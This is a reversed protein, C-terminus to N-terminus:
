LLSRVNGADIRHPQIPVQKQLCFMQPASFSLIDRHVCEALGIKRYNIVLEKLILEKDCFDVYTCVDYDSHLATGPFVDLLEVFQVCESTSRPDGFLNNGAKCSLM